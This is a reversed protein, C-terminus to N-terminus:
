LQFQLRSEVVCRLARNGGEGKPYAEALETCAERASGGGLRAPLDCNLASCFSRRLSRLVPSLPCPVPSPTPRRDETERDDARM